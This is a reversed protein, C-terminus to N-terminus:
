YVDPRTTMAAVRSVNVPAPQRSAKYLAAEKCLIDAALDFLAAADGVKGADELAIAKLGLRLAGLNSVFLEDNDGTIPYLRRRVIARLTKTERDTLPFRYTRFSPSTDRGRYVAVNFQEGADDTLTLVVDGLTVPKVVREIKSWRDASTADPLTYTKTLKAGEHDYGFVTVAGADDGQLSTVRLRAGAAGPQRIVAAEGLDIGAHAWSKVDLPGPGYELFEFWAPQVELPEGELTAHVIAEYDTPLSVIGGFQAFKVRAYQCPWQGLTCLREQALSVLERLRADGAQMGTQGAVRALEAKVQGFTRKTM